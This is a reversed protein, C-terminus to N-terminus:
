EALLLIMEDAIKAPNSIEQIRARGAIAIERAAAPNKIFFVVRDALKDVDHDSLLFGYRDSDIIEKLGGHRVSAVLPVGHTIAELPSLGMADWESNFLMVDISKYFQTLNEQWGLWQIKDAIGLQNSLKKLRSREEGDGAILFQVNPVVECIKQAVHLFVDFRKRQTLWGANGIVFVDDQIGLNQRALVREEDSHLEPISIPNRVTHSYKKLPPYIAEAEGRIFDSPFTIANFRVCALMYILRWQWEPKVGTHHFHVALIRRRSCFKGLAIMSFFHHGTMILADSNSERLAKKVLFFSRWGGIGRYPLGIAAIGNKLLLPGLSGIPNLSIVSLTNGLKKLGIMLSLSAQEMGGLNTGQIVNLIKM